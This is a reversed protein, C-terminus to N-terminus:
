NVKENEGRQNLSSDQYKGKCEKFSPRQNKFSSQLGKSSVPSSAWTPVCVSCLFGKCPDTGIVAAAITTLLLEPLSSLPGWFEVFVSPGLGFSSSGAECAGEVVKKEMPWVVVIDRICILGIFGCRCRVYLIYEHGVSKRTKLEPTWSVTSYFKQHVLTTYGVNIEGQPTM